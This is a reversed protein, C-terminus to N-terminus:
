RKENMNVGKKKMRKKKKKNDTKFVIGELENVRGRNVDGVHECRNRIKKVYARNPKLHLHLEQDCITGKDDIQHTCRGVIYILDGGVGNESIESKM